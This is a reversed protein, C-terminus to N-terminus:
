AMLEAAQEEALRLTHSITLKKPAWEKLAADWEILYRFNRNMKSLWMNSSTKPEPRLRTGHSGPTQNFKKSDSKVKLAM